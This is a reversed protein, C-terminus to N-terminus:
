DKPLPRREEDNEKLRCLTAKCKGHNQSDLPILTYSKEIIGLIVSVFSKSGTGVTKIESLKSIKTRM